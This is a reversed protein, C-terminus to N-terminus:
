LIVLPRACVSSCLVTVFFFFHSFCVKLIYICLASLPSVPTFPPVEKTGFNLSSTRAAGDAAVMQRMGLSANVLGSAGFVAIAQAPLKRGAIVGQNAAEIVANIHDTHLHTIFMATISPTWDESFFTELRPISGHGADFVLVKNQPGGPVSSYFIALGARGRRSDPTPIGSGLIGLTAGVLPKPPVNFPVGDNTPTGGFLISNSPLGIDRQPFSPVANSWYLMYLVESASKGNMAATWWSPQPICPPLREINIGAYFCKPPIFDIPPILGIIDDVDNAVISDSFSSPADYLVQAENVALSRLHRPIRAAAAATLLIAVVLTHLSSM